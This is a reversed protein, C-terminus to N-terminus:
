TLKYNTTGTVPNFTIYGHEFDSRRGTTIAYEDSIPMGLKGSAGGLEIYKELIAGYVVHAGHKSSWYIRAKEFRSSRGKNPASLENTTPFGWKSPGGTSVYKTLIAGQVVRAGYKSSWYVNGNEFTAMKGGAISKADAIPLGLDTARARADDYGELLSNSVYFVKGTKAVFFLRGNAFDQARGRVTGDLDKWAYEKTKATGPKCNMADYRMRIAGFINPAILNSKLDLVSRFSSGSLRADAITGDILVGGHTEDKVSLIRGSIGKPSLFKISRIPGTNHGAERLRRQIEEADFTESWNAHPNEGGFYDGPDCVGRLYPLATGGFVNEVNETHGGTSSSYYAQIPKGGYTAVLGATGNVAAVWRSVEHQVGAYAQDATTAYVACNCVSRNQGLRNIKELAYTRGAIAQAELAEHHWSAPMEALGYLYQEFPVILIARTKETSPNIGIDIRGHKYQYGTQPLEILTGNPEYRITVPSSTTFKASSGGPAYVELKSGNPKVRWRGEGTATAKKAGSSDYLNFPGDAELYIEAREQLLGVRIESPLTKKQVEIGTYYHKLIQSATKGKEALGRAGWQGMGGGHGWGRGTFTFTDARAVPAAILGALVAAAAVALRVARRQRTM